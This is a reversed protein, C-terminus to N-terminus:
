EWVGAFLPETPRKKEDVHLDKFIDASARNEDDTDLTIDLEGRIDESASVLMIEAGEHNLFEVPEVESFKRGRFKETLHKPYSAEQRPRLGAGKPSPKLPNKVSIIYSAQDQLNMERQPEGQKKPLELAYVLHTHGNHGAIRYVGEGFPRAAPVTRQGRTKTWYTDEELERRISKPDKRVMDIFGWLRTTGPQSPDPMRKGGVVALRYRRRDEPSLVFYMRQIDAREGPEQQEVKPRYFFYINGKELTKVGDQQKAM